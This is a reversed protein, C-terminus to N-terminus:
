LIVVTEFLDTQFKFDSRIESEIHQFYKHTQYYGLLDVNDPCNNFTRMLLICEKWAFKILKYDM